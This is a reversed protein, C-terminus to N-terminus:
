KQASEQNMVDIVTAMKAMETKLKEIQKEQQSITVMMKDMTQQLIFRFCYEHFFRAIKDDCSVAEIATIAFIEDIPKGHYREACYKEVQDTMEELINEIDM